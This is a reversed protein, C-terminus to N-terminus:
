PKFPSALAPTGYHLTLTRSCQGSGLSIAGKRMADQYSIYSDCEACPQMAAAGGGAELPLKTGGETAEPTPAIGVM